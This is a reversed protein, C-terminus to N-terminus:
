QQAPQTADGELVTLSINSVGTLSEDQTDRQIQLIVASFAMEQVQQLSEGETIIGGMEVSDDFKKYGYTITFKNM